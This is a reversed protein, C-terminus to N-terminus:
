GKEAATRGSFHKGMITKFNNTKSNTVTNESCPDDVARQFFM